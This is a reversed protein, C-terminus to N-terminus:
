RCQEEFTATLGARKEQLRQSAVMMESLNRSMAQCQPTMLQGHSLCLEAFFQHLSDIAREQAEIDQGLREISASLTECEEPSMTCQGAHTKRLEALRQEDMAIDKRLENLGLMMQTCQPSGHGGHSFCM